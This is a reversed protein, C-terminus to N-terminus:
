CNKSNPLNKIPYIACNKVFIWAMQDCQLRIINELSIFCKSWTLVEDQACGVPSDLFVDIPKCAKEREEARVIAEARDDLWLDGEVSVKFINGYTFKSSNITPLYQLYPLLYVNFIHKFTIETAIGM